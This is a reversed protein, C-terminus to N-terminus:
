QGHLSSPRGTDLGNEPEQPHENPVQRIQQYRECADALIEALEVIM